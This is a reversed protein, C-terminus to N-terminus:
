RALAELAKVAVFRRFQVDHLREDILGIAFPDTTQQRRLKLNLEETWTQQVRDELQMRTVPSVSVRVYGRHAPTIYELRELGALTGATAIILASAASIATLVKM